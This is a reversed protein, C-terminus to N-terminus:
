KVFMTFLHDVTQNIRESMISETAEEHWTVGLAFGILESIIIEAVIAPDIDDRVLHQRICTDILGRIHGIVIEQYELYINRLDRNYNFQAWYDIIVRIYEKHNLSMKMTYTIIGRIRELPRDQDPVSINMSVLFFDVFTKMVELMVEDKTEFYYHFGGKSIEAEEAIDEVTLNIYGIKAIANFASWIIHNRKKEQKELIKPNKTKQM